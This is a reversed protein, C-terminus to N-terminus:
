GGRCVNDKKESKIKDPLIIGSALIKERNAIECLYSGRAPLLM